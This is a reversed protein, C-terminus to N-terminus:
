RAFFSPDEYALRVRNNRAVGKLIVHDQHIEAVVFAGGELEDGEQYELGDIVALRHKGLEVYGTFRPMQPRQVEEAAAKFDMSRDSFAGAKWPKAMIAIIQADRDSVRYAEVGKAIAGAQEAIGAATREPGAPGKKAAGSGFYVALGVVLALGMLALLIKERKSM